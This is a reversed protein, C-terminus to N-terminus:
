FAVPLYPNNPPMKVRGRRDLYLVARIEPGGPTLAFSFRRAELSTRRVNFELWGPLELPTLSVPRRPIGLGKCATARCGSRPATVMGGRRTQLSSGFARRSLLYDHTTSIADGTLLSRGAVVM